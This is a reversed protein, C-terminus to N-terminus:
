RNLSKEAEMYRKNMNRPGGIFSAPLIVRRSVKSARTEGILISDIIGQYSLEFKRNNLV